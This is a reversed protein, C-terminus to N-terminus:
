DRRAHCAPSNSPGPAANSNREHLYTIRLNGVQQAAKGGRERQFSGVPEFYLGIPARGIGNFREVFIDGVQDCIAVRKGAKILKRMYSDMAHFPIGCMPVSNRKTLAVNLIASGEKADEFFMEYFDGLRYFLIADPVQRKIEFYQELMPTLKMPRTM